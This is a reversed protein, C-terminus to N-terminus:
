NALTAVAHAIADAMGDLFAEDINDITDCAQDSCPDAPEGAAGGFVTAQEEIRRERGGAFLGGTPIGADAFPGHDSHGALDIPAWALGAGDFYSTFLATLADSGPAAGDEAYVSRIPNPSGLMDVNLYADIRALETASLADVYARSGHPGGEEAGWFAFRVTREPAPLEALREAIVLLTAVGLGNDNIGPGAEVSDLHAGVMIVEPDTGAREVLVNVSPVSGLAFSQRVVEYGAESLRNIVYEVSEDFGITGTARNGGNADAIRQLEQLHARIDSVEVADRLGRATLKPSPAPESPPSVAPASAKTASPTRESSQRSTPTSPPAACCVLVFAVLLAPWRM